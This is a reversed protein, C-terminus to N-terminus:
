FLSIVLTCQAVDAEKTNRAQDMNMKPKLVKRLLQFFSVSEYFRAYLPVFMYQVCLNLNYTYSGEVPGELVLSDSYTRLVDYSTLM